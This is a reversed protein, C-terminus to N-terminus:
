DDRKVPLKVSAMGESFDEANIFKPKIQFKGKHNIYGVKDKILVACLGESFLGVGDFRCPIVLKGSKDIFGYKSQGQKKRYAVPAVGEVFPGAYAFKDKIQVKGAKDIYKWNKPEFRVLKTHKHADQVSALGESFFSTSGYKEELIPQGSRDFFGFNAGLLSLSFRGSVMVVGSPKGPPATGTLVLATCHPWTDDSPNGIWSYKPEVVFKGSKDILGWSEGVLVPAYGNVFKGAKDFSISIALKGKKDIYIWDHAFDKKLLDDKSLKVAALGDSFDGAEMYKQQIVFKGQKDIYGYKNSRGRYNVASLGESFSSAQFFKLEIVEKGSKDIFGTGSASKSVVALGESFPKVYDYVPGVILKGKKNIFGHKCGSQFKRPIRSTAPETTILWGLSISVLAIVITKIKM